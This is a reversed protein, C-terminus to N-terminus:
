ICACESAFTTALLPWPDQCIGYSAAMPKGPEVDAGLCLEVTVSDSM